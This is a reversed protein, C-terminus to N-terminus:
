ARDAEEMLARQAGAQAWAAVFLRAFDEATGVTFCSKGATIISVTDYDVGVHVPAGDTDHVTGLVRVMPDAM